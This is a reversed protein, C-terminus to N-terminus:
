EMQGSQWIEIETIELIRLWAFIPLTTRDVALNPHHYNYKMTDVGKTGVVREKRKRHSASLIQM